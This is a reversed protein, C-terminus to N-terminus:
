IKLSNIAKNLQEEVQKSINLAETETVIPNSDGKAPIYDLLVSLYGAKRNKSTAWFNIQEGIFIANDYKSKKSIYFGSFIHILLFEENTNETAQRWAKVVNNLPDERRRELEVRIEHYKSHTGIFDVQNAKGLKVETILTCSCWNEVAAKVAETFNM